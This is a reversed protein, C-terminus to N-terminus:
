VKEMIKQITKFSKNLAEIDEDNLVSLKNLVKEKIDHRHEELAIAGKDSIKIKIIRRDSDDEEREILENDVMKSVLSSMNPKSILLKKSYHKMPKCGESDVNYLLRMQHPTYKSQGGKSIAKHMLKHIMPLFDILYEFTKERSM